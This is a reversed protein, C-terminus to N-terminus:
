ISLIRCCPSMSSTFRNTVIYCMIYLIICIIIVYDLLYISACLLIYTITLYCYTYREDETGLMDGDSPQPTHVTVEIGGISRYLGCSYLLEYVVRLFMQWKDLIIHIRYLSVSRYLCSYLIGTSTNKYYFRDEPISQPYLDILQKTIELSLDRMFSLFMAEHTGSGLGSFHSEKKYTDYTDSNHSKQSDEASLKATSSTTGTDAGASTSTHDFNDVMDTVQAVILQVLYAICLLQINTLVREQAHISDSSPMIPQGPVSTASLTITYLICIHLCVMELLPIRLLPPKVISHNAINVRLICFLNMHCIRKIPSDFHSGCYSCYCDSGEYIGRSNCTNNNSNNNNNLSIYLTNLYAINTARDYLNLLMNNNSNNNNTNSNNYLLTLMTDHISQTLNMTMVECAIFKMMLVLPQMYSHGSLLSTTTHQNTSPQPNLYTLNLDPTVEPTVKPPTYSLNCLITPVELNCLVLTNATYTIMSIINLISNSVGENNCIQLAPICCTSGATGVKSQGIFYPEFLSDM